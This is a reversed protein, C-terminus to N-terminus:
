EPINNQEKVVEELGRSVQMESIMQRVTRVPPSRSITTPTHISSHKSQKPAELNNRNTNYFHGSILSKYLIM